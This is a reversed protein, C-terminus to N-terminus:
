SFCDLLQRFGSGTAIIDQPSRNNAYLLRSKANLIQISERLYVMLYEFQSNVDYVRGLDIFISLVDFYKNNEEKM